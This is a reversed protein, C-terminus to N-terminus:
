AAVGRAAATRALDEALRRISRAAHSHDDEVLPRQERLMHEACEYEHEVCALVPVDPFCAAVEAPAHHHRSHFRNLVVGVKARLPALPGGESLALRLNWLGLASPEAVVLVLDAASLAAAHGAGAPGALGTASASGVDAIVWAHGSALHRLLREVLGPTVDALMAAPAALGALAHLRPRVAQLEPGVAAALDRGAGLSSAVQFLNYTPQLGLAVAVNGGRLDLDCLAVPRPEGRRAALAAALSIALTTKGPGGHGSTVAVITGAESHGREVEAEGGSRAPVLAARRVARALSAGDAAEEVACMSGPAADSPGLLVAGIGGARLAGLVATELGPLRHHVLVVTRGAGGAAARLLGAADLARESVRVGEAALARLAGRAVPEEACAVVRVELEAGASAAPRPELLTM